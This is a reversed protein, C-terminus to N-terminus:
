ARKIQPNGTQKKKAIKLRKSLDLLYAIEHHSYDLLTLFNRNKLNM